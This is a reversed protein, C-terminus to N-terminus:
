GVGFLGAAPVKRKGIFVDVAFPIYARDLVEVAEGNLDFRVAHDPTYNVVFGVTSGCFQVRPTKRVVVLAQRAFTVPPQSLDLPIKM